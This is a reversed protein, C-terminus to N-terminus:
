WLAVHIIAGSGDDEVEQRTYWRGTGGGNRMKWVQGGGKSGKYNRIFNNHRVLNIHNIFNMRKGGNSRRLPWVRVTYKVEGIQIDLYNSLFCDGMGKVKIHAHFLNDLFLTNRDVDIM